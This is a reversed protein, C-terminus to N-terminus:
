MEFNSVLNGNSKSLAPRGPNRIGAPLLSKKRRSSVLLGVKPYLWDRNLSYRPGKRPTIRGFRSASWM